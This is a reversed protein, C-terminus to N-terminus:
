LFRLGGNPKPSVNNTWTIALKPASQAFSLANLVVSGQRGEDMQGSAVTLKSPFNGNGSYGLLAWPGGNSLNEDVYTYGLDTVDRFHPNDIIQM